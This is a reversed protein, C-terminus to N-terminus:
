RAASPGPADRSAGPGDAEHRRHSGARAAAVLTAPPVGLLAIARAATGHELAAVVALVHAGRPERSGDEEALRAIEQVTRDFAPTRRTRM